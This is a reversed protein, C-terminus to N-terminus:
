RAPGRLKEPGHVNVVEDDGALAGEVALAFFHPVVVFTGFFVVALDQGVHTSV